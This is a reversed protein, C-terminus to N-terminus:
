HSRQKITMGWTKSQGGDLPPTTLKVDVGDQANLSAAAFAQTDADFEVTLPSPLTFTIPPVTILTPALSIALAPVAWTAAYQQGDPGSYSVTGSLPLSVSAPSPAATNTLSFTLHTGTPTSDGPVVSVSLPGAPLPSARPAPPANLPPPAQALAPVTCLCLCLALLTTQKM